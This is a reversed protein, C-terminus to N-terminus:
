YYVRIIGSELRIMAYGECMIKGNFGSSSVILRRDFADILSSLSASWHMKADPDVALCSNAFHALVHYVSILASAGNARLLLYSYQM